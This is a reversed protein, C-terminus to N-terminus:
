HVAPRIEPTSAGELKELTMFYFHLRTRARRLPEQLNKLAKRDAENLEKMKQEVVPAKIMMFQYIDFAKKRQLFCESLKVANDRNNCLDKYLQNHVNTLTDFAGLHPQLERPFQKKGNALAAIIGLYEKENELLFQIHHDYSSSTVSAKDEELEYDEWDEDDIELDRQSSYDSDNKSYISLNDYEDRSYISISDSDDTLQSVRRNLMPSQETSSIKISSLHSDLSKMSCPSDSRLTISTKKIPSLHSDLSKLSCPSDSGLTGSSPSEEKKVAGFQSFDLNLNSVNEYKKLLSTETNASFNSEHRVDAKDGQLFMEPNSNGTNSSFQPEHSVAERKNQLSLEPASHREELKLHSEQSLIDQQSIQRSFDIASSAPENNKSFPRQSSYIENSNSTESTTSNMLQQQNVASNSNKSGIHKQSHLHSKNNGTDKINPLSSNNEEFNLNSKQSLKREYNIDLSIRENNEASTRPSQYMEQKNSYESNSINMPLSEISTISNRSGHLKSSHLHSKNHGSEGITPPLSCREELKLHTKQSLIYDQSMRGNDVTDYPTPDSSGHLKSSHLNSKNHGSEEITPPLSRRGELKLHTKQSLIYDQSMRGNDVTDYNTLDSNMATTRPCQNIVHNNSIETNTINVPLQQQGSSNSNRSNNLKLSHLHSKNQGAVENKQMSHRVEKTLSHRSEDPLTVEISALTHRTELPKKSIKEDVNGLKRHLFSSGKPESKKQEAKLNLSNKDNSKVALNKDQYEDYDTCVVTKELDTIREESEKKLTTCTLTSSSSNNIEKGHNLAQNSRYNSNTTQLKKDDNISKNSFNTTAKMSSRNNTNGVSCKLSAGRISLDFDQANMVPMSHRKTYANETRSAKLHQNHRLHVFQNADKVDCATKEFTESKNRNTKIAPDHPISKQESVNKTAMPKAVENNSFLSDTDKSFDKKRQNLSPNVNSDIGRNQNQNKYDNTLAIPNERLESKRTSRYSSDKNAADKIRDESKNILKTERSKNSQNLNYLKDPVTGPVPHLSSNNIEKQHSSGQKNKSDFNSTQNTKVEDISKNSYKTTAKMSSKTITNEVSSELSKGRLSDKTDHKDVVPMSQRKSYGSVAGLAKLPQNYKVNASHDKEKMVSGPIEAMAPRSKIKMDSDTQKSIGERNNNIVMSNSNESKSCQRVMDRSFDKQRQTHIESNGHIKSKISSNKEVISGCKNKYQSHIDDKPEEKTNLQKKNEPLKDSPLNSKYTMRSSTKSQVNAKDQKCDSINKCLNTSNVTKNENELVNERKITSNPAKTTRSLHFQDREDKNVSNEEVQFLSIRDKVKVSSRRIIGKGTGRDRVFTPEKTLGPKIFSKERNFGRIGRSAVFSAGRATGRGIGKKPVTEKLDKEMTNPNDPLMCIYIFIVICTSIFICEYIFIM